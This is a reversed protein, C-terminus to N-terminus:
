SRFLSGSHNSSSFSRDQFIELSIRRAHDRILSGSVERLNEPRIYQMGDYLWFNFVDAFVQPNSFFVKMLHDAKGM